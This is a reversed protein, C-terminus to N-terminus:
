GNRLPAQCIGLRGVPKWAARDICADEPTLRPHPITTPRLASPSIVPFGSESARCPKEVPGVAETVGSRAEVLSEATLGRNLRARGQFVLDMCDPHSSREARRAEAAATTVEAALFLSLTSMEVHSEADVRFM